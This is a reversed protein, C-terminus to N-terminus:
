SVAQLLLPEFRRRRGRPTMPGMGGYTTRQETTLQRAKAIASLVTAGETPTRAYSRTTSAICDSTRVSAKPGSSTTPSAGTTTAACTSAKRARRSSRRSSRARGDRRPAHRRQERHGVRHHRAAPESLSGRLRPDGHSHRRAVSRLGHAALLVDSRARALVCRQRARDHVARRRRFLPRDASVGARFYYQLGLWDITNAWEPHMEDPVGDLDTDFGGTLAADVYCTTSCTSSAIARPSTPRIARRSTAARRSGIRSRCRSGSRRRSAMATPM